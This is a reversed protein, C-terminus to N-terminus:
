IGLCSKARAWISFLMLRVIHWGLTALGSLGIGEDSYPTTTTPEQKKGNQRLREVAWFETQPGSKVAFLFAISRQLQAEPEPRFAWSEIVM